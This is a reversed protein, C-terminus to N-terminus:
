PKAVRPQTGHVTGSPVMVFIGVTGQNGQCSSSPSFDVLVFVACARFSLEATGHHYAKESSEPKTVADVAASIRKWLETIYRTNQGHEIILRMMRSATRGSKNLRSSYHEFHATEAVFASSLLRKGM